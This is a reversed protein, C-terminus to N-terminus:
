ELNALSTEVFDCYEGLKGTRVLIHTTKASEAAVELIVQDVDGGSETAALIVAGGVMYDDFPIDCERDATVMMVATDFYMNQAAAPPAGIACGTILALLLGKGFRKM